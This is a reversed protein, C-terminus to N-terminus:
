VEGLTEEQLITLILQPIWRDLVEGQDERQGRDTKSHVKSIREGKSLSILPFLTIGYHLPLLHRSSSPFFPPRSHSPLHPSNYNM